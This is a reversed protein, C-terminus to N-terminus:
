PVAVAFEAIVPAHDSPRELTRVKRDIEASSSVDALVPTAWLHDIRLGHNRRFAGARYDWWSYLGPESKHRRFVDVLGWQEIVRLADREPKSFLVRGEWLVPDHVDRPEPAINFDGCLVLRQDALCSEDFYRRLRALWSLKYGFKESGVESGNPVYVNIVRIPGIVVDLLRCQTDGGAEPFGRRTDVIPHLSLVAVGNYTPQGWTVAQYGLELLPEAPFREDTCKTEQLCVVDPRTTKLWEVLQPLRVAISNVNWTAVKM